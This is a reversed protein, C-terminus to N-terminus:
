GQPRPPRHSIPFLSSPIPFLSSPVSVRARKSEGSGVDVLQERVQVSTM